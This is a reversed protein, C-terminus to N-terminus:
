KRCNCQVPMSRGNYGNREFIQSLGNNSKIFIYGDVCYRVIVEEVIGEEEAKPDIVYSFKDQFLFCSKAHLLSSLILISLIFKKM